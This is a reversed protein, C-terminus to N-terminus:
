QMCTYTCTHTHVRIAVPIDLSSIGSRCQLVKASGLVTCCVILYCMHMCTHTCTCTCVCTGHTSVTPELQWYGHCKRCVSTYIIKTFLCFVVVCSKRQTQRQQKKCTYCKYLECSVLVAMVIAMVIVTVSSLTGAIIGVHINYIYTHM